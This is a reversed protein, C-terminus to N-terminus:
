LHQQFFAVLAELAGPTIRHGVGTEILCTLNDDLQAESLANQLRLSEAVPVLEDAEGHWILLPRRAINELRDTIDYDALLATQRALAGALEAERPPFLTHCLSSFYGSGMLCAGSVFHPYRAMAGLATMGGMSGGALAIRQQAVLGRQRLAAELLPVEDINSRLIDWFHGLRHENDGNYRAGHQQADPLIVRFGALALAVAAWSWVEKSSTFGHFFLITPLPHHRQGVPSAHLCEIGAFTETAIEIM